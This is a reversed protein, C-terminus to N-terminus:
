HKLILSCVEHDTLDDQIDDLMHLIGDLHTINIHKSLLKRITSDCCITALTEKQIILEEYDVEKM